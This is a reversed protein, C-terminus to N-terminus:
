DAVDGGIAPPPVRRRRPLEDLQGAARQQNIRGPHALQLRPGVFRRHRRCEVVDRRERLRAPERVARVPALRTARDGVGDAGTAEVRVTQFVVTSQQALRRELLPLTVLRRRCLLLAAPLLEVLRLLCQIAISITRLIHRFARTPLLEPLPMRAPLCCGNNSPPLM